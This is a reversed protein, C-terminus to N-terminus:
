IPRPMKQKNQEQPHGANSLPQEFRRDKMTCEKDFTILFRTSLIIRVSMEVTVM